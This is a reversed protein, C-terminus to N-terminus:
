LLSKLQEDLFTKHTTYISDHPTPLALLAKKYNDITNKITDSPINIQNRLIILSKQFFHLAQEHNKLYHYVIALNNYALATEISNTTFRQEMLDKIENAISLANTYDDKFLAQNYAARLEDMSKNKYITVQVLGNHQEFVAPQFGREKLISQVRAIGSGQLEVLDHLFFFRAIEPNRQVSNMNQIDNFDANKPFAGANKIVLRDPYVEVMIRYPTDYEYSRHIYANALLERFVDQPISYDLVRPNWNIIEMPSLEKIILDHMEEYQQILNGYVHESKRVVTKDLTAFVGFSSYGINAGFVSLKSVNALCFFSGKVVYGNTMLTLARLKENLPANKAIKHKAFHDKVLPLNLFRRVEKADLDDITKGAIPQSTLAIQNQIATALYDNYMDFESRNEDNPVYNNNIVKDPGINDGEGEHDQNLNPTQM